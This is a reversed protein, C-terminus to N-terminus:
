LSAVTVLDLLPPGPLVQSQPTSCTPAARRSRSEEESEQRCQRSNRARNQLFLSPCRNGPGSRRPESPVQLIHADVKRSGRELVIGSESHLVCQRTSCGGEM